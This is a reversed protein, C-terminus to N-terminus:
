GQINMPLVSSPASVGIGQGGSAFFQSSLGQHQSLDLAPPSPLSLPHSPQIADNVWHVHTQAFEPLYHLVQFGPTSCDIPDCLTLCVKTVSCCCCCVPLCYLITFFSIPYPIGDRHAEIKEGKCSVLVLEKLEQSSKIPRHTSHKM